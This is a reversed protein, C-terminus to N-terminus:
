EPSDMVAESWVLDSKAGENCLTPCGSSAKGTNSEKCGPKNADSREGERVSSVRGAIPRVLVLAEEGTKSKAFESSETKKCETAQRSETNGAGSRTSNSTNKGKCCGAQRSGMSNTEPKDRDPKTNVRGTVSLVLDPKGDDTLLEVSEPEGSETRLWVM